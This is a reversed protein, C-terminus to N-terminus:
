VKKISVLPALAVIAYGVWMDWSAFIQWGTFPVTLLCDMLLAIVLWSVSYKLANTVSNPKVKRGAFLAAVIVAVLIVVKALLGDSAKYAVFVCAILYAVVWILLGYGILKKYNM